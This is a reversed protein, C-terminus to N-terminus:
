SILESKSIRSIGSSKLIVFAGLFVKCFCYFLKRCSAHRLKFADLKIEWRPMQTYFTIKSNETQLNKFCSQFIKVGFSNLILLKLFILFSLPFNLFTLKNLFNLLIGFTFYYSRQGDQFHKKLFLISINYKLYIYIEYRVDLLLFRKFAQYIKSLKVLYM